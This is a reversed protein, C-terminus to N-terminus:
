EMATMDVEYNVKEKKSRFLLLLPIIAIFFVGIYIFVDIYTLMTAQRMMSGEIAAYAGRRASEM